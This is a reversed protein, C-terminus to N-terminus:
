ESAPLNTLSNPAFYRHQTCAIAVIRNIDCAKSQLMAQEVAWFQNECPAKQLFTLPAAPLITSINGCGIQIIIDEWDYIMPKNLASQLWSDYEVWTAIMEARESLWIDESTGVQRM